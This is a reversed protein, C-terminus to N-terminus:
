RRREGRTAGLAGEWGGGGGGGGGGSSLVGEGEGEGGGGVMSKFREGKGGEFGEGRRAM